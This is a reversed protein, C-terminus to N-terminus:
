KRIRKLHKNYEKEIYEDYQKELEREIYEDYQKELEREVNFDYERDAGTEAWLISLEEENAECWESFNLM